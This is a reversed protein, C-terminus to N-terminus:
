LVQKRFRILLISRLEIFFIKNANRKRPARNNCPQKVALSSSLEIGQLRGADQSFEAGPMGPIPPNLPYFTKFVSEFFDTKKNPQGSEFPM